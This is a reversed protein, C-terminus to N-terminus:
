GHSLSEPLPSKAYQHGVDILTLAGDSSLFCERNEFSCVDLRHRLTAKMPYVITDQKSRVHMREEVASVYGNRRVVLKSHATSKLVVKVVAFVVALELPAFKPERGTSLIFGLPFEQLPVSVRDKEFLWPCPFCMSRSWARICSNLDKTVSRSHSCNWSGFFRAIAKAESTPSSSASYRHTLFTSASLKEVPSVCRPRMAASAASTPILKSSKQSRIPISRISTIFSFIAM